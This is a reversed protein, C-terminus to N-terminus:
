SLRGERRLGLAALGADRLRDVDREGSKAADIIRKAIVEYVIQPQGSDHLAICAADFAEGMAKTAHEDFATGTKQIFPLISAVRVERFPELKAGIQSILYSASLLISAYAM